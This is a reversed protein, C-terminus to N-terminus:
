FNRIIIKPPAAPNVTYTTDAGSAIVSYVLGGAPTPNNSRPFDTIHSADANVDRIFVIRGSNFYTSYSNIIVTYTNADAAVFVIQDLNDLGNQNPAPDIDVEVFGTTLNVSLEVKYVTAM